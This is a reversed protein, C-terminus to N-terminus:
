ANARSVAHRRLGDRPDVGGNSAVLRSADQRGRSRLRQRVDLDRRPNGPFFWVCVSGGRSVLRFGALSDSALAIVDGAALGEVMGPSFLLRLTGGENREVDIKEVMPTRENTRIPLNITEAM